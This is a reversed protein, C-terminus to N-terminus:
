KKVINYLLLREKLQVAWSKLKACEEKFDPKSLAFYSSNYKKNKYNVDNLLDNIKIMSDYLYYMVVHEPSLSKIFKQKDPIIVYSDDKCSAKIPVLDRNSSLINSTIVLDKKESLNINSKEMDTTTESMNEKAYINKFESTLSQTVWIMCELNYEEIITNITENTKNSSVTSINQRLKSSVDIYLKVLHGLSLCNEVSLVGTLLLEM